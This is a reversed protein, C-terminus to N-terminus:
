RSMVIIIAIIWGAIGVGLAIWFPWWIDKYKPMCYMASGAWLGCGFIGLLIMLILNWPFM